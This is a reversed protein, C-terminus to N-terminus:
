YLIVIYQFFINKDNFFTRKINGNVHGRLKQNVGTKPTCIGTIYIKKNIWSKSLNFNRVDDGKQHLMMM